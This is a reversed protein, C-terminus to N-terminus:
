VEIIKNERLFRSITDNSTKAFEETYKINFKNM